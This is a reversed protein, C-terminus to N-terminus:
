FGLEEYYDSVSSSERVSEWYKRWEEHVKIDTGGTKWGAKDIKVLAPLPTMMGLVVAEGTNLSPLLELLEDSLTESARQVYQQDKPEVLKLIIKNNTQSLADEDVNKPRQSVLVLGVGFKRGERAIRAVVRKTLTDRRAPVLVHAEEVVALVPVPYGREGRSMVYAKRENLLKLLYHHTVADAVEEDVSGLKLVNVYGPKIVNELKTPAGERLVAGGYRDILEELKHRLDALSNRDSAPIKSNKSSADLYMREIEDLLLELFRERQKKAAGSKMLKKYAMRLYMRQKSASPPLNLLSYYEGVSLEAPNVVPQIVHTNRGGVGEYESHMDILLATGRLENVIRSLLVAVTNSKGAGTIALIALHRCVISPVHVYFPVDERGALTGLRVWGDKVDRAFIARLVESSAEFVRASPRPPYKPTEVRRREKDLLTHLWSLIRAQGINYEHREVNFSYAKEVFEPRLGTVSLMPNGVGSREVIGLAYSEKGGPGNGYEILVYEGVSVPRSSTFFVKTHTTEGIVWGLQKGVEAM